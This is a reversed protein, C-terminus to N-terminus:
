GAGLSSGVERTAIFCIVRGKLASCNLLGHAVLAKLLHFGLSPAFVRGFSNFPQIPVSSLCTYFSTPSSASLSVTQPYKYVQLIHPKTLIQFRPTREHKWTVFLNPNPDIYAPRRGARVWLTPKDFTDFDPKPVAAQPCLRQHLLENYNPLFCCSCSRCSFM